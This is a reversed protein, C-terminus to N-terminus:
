KEADKPLYQTLIDRISKTFEFKPVFEDAGADIWQQRCTPDMSMGIVVQDPNKEKMQACVDYGHIGGMQTDMLVADYKQQRVKQLAEEGSAACDVAANCGSLSLTNELILQLAERILEDDDVVLIKKKESM